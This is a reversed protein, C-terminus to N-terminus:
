NFVPSHIVLDGMGQSFGIVTRIIRNWLVATHEFIIPQLVIREPFRWVSSAVPHTHQRAHKKQM